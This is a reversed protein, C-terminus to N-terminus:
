SRRGALFAGLSELIVVAMFGTFVWRPDEFWVALVLGIIPPIVDLQRLPNARM